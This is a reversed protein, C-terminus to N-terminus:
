FVPTILDGAKRVFVIGATFVSLGWLISLNGVRHEPALVQTALFHSFWSRPRKQAGGAGSPSTLFGPQASLYSDNKRSAM